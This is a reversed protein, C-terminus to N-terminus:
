SPGWNPSLGDFQSRMLQVHAVIGQVGLWWGGGWLETECGVASLFAAIHSEDSSVQGASRSGGVDGDSLWVGPSFDHFYSPSYTFSIIAAPCYCMPLITSANHQPRPIIVHCQIHCVAASVNKWGRHPVFNIFHLLILSDNSYTLLISTFWKARTTRCSISLHM